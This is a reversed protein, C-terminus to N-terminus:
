GSPPSPVRTGAQRSSRTRQLRLALGPAGAACQEGPDAPRRLARGHARFARPELSEASTVDSEIGLASGGREEILKCTAEVKSLTRGTVAVRAGHRALSLAIGQGVGQGGGTVIAVKGELMGKTQTM